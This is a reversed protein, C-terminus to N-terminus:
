KNNQKSLLVLLVVCMEQEAASSSGRESISSMQPSAPKPEATLVNIRMPTSTSPKAM